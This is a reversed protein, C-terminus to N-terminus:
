YKVQRKDKPVVIFVEELKSMNIAPKIIGYKVFQGKDEIIKTIKGILIGKPYIQGLGSTLITDGEKIDAELNSTEMKALVNNSDDKYGKVIGNAEQSRQNFGAVSINENGLTQIISWNSGVSTVQGVLGENTIAVMRKSIGDNTGKNIIYGDLYSNGAIGLVSCGIYKYKDNENEYSVMKRLRKNEKKINEYDIISNKLKANEKKLEENQDKVKSFNFAFSVTNKIKSNVKYFLEQIPNLIIGVGNGAFNINSRKSTYGILAFFGICLCIIIIILKNKKWFKM